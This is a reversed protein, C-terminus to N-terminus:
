REAARDFLLAWLVLPRMNLIARFTPQGPDYAAPTRFWLGRDKYLQDHVARLVQASESELGYHWLQCALSYNIGTLVESSQNMPDGYKAAGAAIEHAFGSINAVGEESYNKALITQLARRAKERPVVPPLGLLDAFWPGFLQEIFVADAYPSDRDFRYYGGTWLSSDFAARGQERMAEWVMAPETEGRRRALVAAAGLAALWLGGCYSSPGRMPINDFTQDPTEEHEILGDGDRDFTALRTMAAVVAPWCDALLTDDNFSIVDRAVTLVFMAPLDKWISPDQYEYANVLVGPDEEPAGLDHPAIGPQTAPFRRNNRPVHRFWGGDHTIWRAYDRLVLRELEPWNRAIAFSGYVWLDLTDYVPYDPCEILGFFPRGDESQPPVHSAVGDTWVTYGDVMLFLDNLLVRVSVLSPARDIVEAHWRDIDVSWADAQDFARAVIATANSGSRGYEHTHRRWHRRGAGFQVTPLDWALVLPIAIVEGPKLTVSASVAGAIVQNDTEIFGPSALWQSEDNPVAGSAAFNEWIDAGTGRASFTITRAVTIRDTAQAAIAWQGTNDPRVADAAARDLLVGVARGEGTPVAFGQNFNGGNVRRPKDVTYDSFWGNLNTWSFMLGITVPRDATNRLHWRFVGVPTCSLEYRHPLVPSFQECVMEVPHRAGAPYIFWAKPFLGAYGGDIPKAPWKWAGLAHNEPTRPQLVTASPPEGTVQQFVAFGNAAETFHKLAGPKLTWRRFNGQWDRGIGGTGIGGLPVGQLAGGDHTTPLKGRQGLDTPADFRRRWAAAPIKPWKPGLRRATAM